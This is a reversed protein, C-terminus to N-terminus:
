HIGYDLLDYVSQHRGEDIQKKIEEWSVLTIVSSTMTYFFAGGVGRSLGRLGETQKIKVVCDRLNNYYIGEGRPNSPQAYMRARLVDLVAIFPASALGSLFAAILTNIFFYRERGEVATDLFSKFASFTSMQLASGTSLRLVNSSTARWLGRWIGQTKYINVLAALASGYGHQYGVAIAATSSHLQLHTKLLFLPSSVFAGIAGSLGGFVASLRISPELNRDLTLGLDESIQYIGLRLGNALLQYGLNTLLGRYVALIGDYRYVTYIAQLTNRYVPRARASRDAITPQLEGQLQIRLKAVEIPHTVFSASCAAIAGVMINTVPENAHEELYATVPALLRRSCADGNPWRRSACGVNWKKSASSRM